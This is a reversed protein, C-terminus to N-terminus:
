RGRVVFDGLWELNTFCSPLHSDNIIIFEEIDENKSIVPILFSGDSVPIKEVQASATGLIVGTFIYENSIGTTYKPIIIAKFYGTRNYTLSVDRLMLLGEQVKFGGNQSVRYYFDPLVWKTEYCNGICANQYNGYVSVTTETEGAKDLPFGESDLVVIQNVNPYVKVFTTVDNLSDYSDAKVFCKRDTYFQFKLNEEYKQSTFDIKELYVGDAYQLFLYLYNNYFEAGLVTTNEFVWKSWASQVKEDSDYMYNYIYIENKKETSLFCVTNSDIGATIKYIGKPIYNPIQESIDRANLGAQSPYVERIRSFKGNESCFLINNGINVPTCYRSCPYEMILDISATSNAFVDGGNVSFVSTESFVLLSEKYPLAHKLLVMKSNSGCDIPDTDLETLATSKFFSFIDDVDSYISKDGSLMALRGKHSFISQITNDIFPPTPISDEDGALRDTWDIPKFSFGGDAERIIAHPMTTNDIKYQIDPATCEEWGGVGFFSNDATKFKVYYDDTAESGDGIIKLMFGNPASEPLDTIAKAENYFSYIDTDANTDQVRITFKGAPNTILIGNGLLQIDWNPLNAKLQEHLKAIVLTTKKAADNVTVSAYMGGEVSSQRQGETTYNAKVEGNILIVYDTAFNARKLFILASNKFPNVTKDTKMRATVTKNLIFTYDGITAAFLDKLPQNTKIYSSNTINVSKENGKLDFVKITDGTLIVSYKEDEKFVTHILPHVTLVTNMLKKVHETPPRKVLGESPLALANIIEKSQNPFMLRCPQQSVGGIFNSVNDKVLM